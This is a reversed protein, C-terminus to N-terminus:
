FLFKGVFRYFAFVLLPPFYVEPNSEEKNAKLFSLPSERRHKAEPNSGEIV